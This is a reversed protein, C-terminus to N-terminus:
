SGKSGIQNPNGSGGHCADSHSDWMVGEGVRGAEVSVAEGAKAEGDGDRGITRMWM